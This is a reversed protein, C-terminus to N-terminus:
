AESAIMGKKRLEDLCGVVDGLVDVEEGLSFRSRLVEGIQAPTSGMQHLEYVLRATANLVHVEDTEADYLLLESGIERTTYSNAM